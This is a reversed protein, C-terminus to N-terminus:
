LCNINSITDYFWMWKSKTLAYNVLNQKSLKNILHVNCNM